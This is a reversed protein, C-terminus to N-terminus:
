AREELEAQELEPAFEVAGEEVERDVLWGGARVMLDDFRVPLTTEIGTQLVCQPAAMAM